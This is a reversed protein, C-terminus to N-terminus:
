TGNFIAARPAKLLVKHVAVAVIVQQRECEGPPMVLVSVASIKTCDERGAAQMIPPVTLQILKKVMPISKGKMTTLQCVKNKWIAEGEVSSQELTGDLQRRNIFHSMLMPHM